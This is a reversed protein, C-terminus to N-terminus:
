KKEEKKIVSLGLEKLQEPTAPTPANMISTKGRGTMPFPQVERLYTEGSLNMINREVGLAIGGHPPVGYAFAELM